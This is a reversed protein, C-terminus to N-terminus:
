AYEILACMRKWEVVLARTNYSLVHLVYLSNEMFRPCIPKTEEIWGDTM